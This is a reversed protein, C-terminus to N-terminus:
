LHFRHGTSRIIFVPVLLPLTVAFLILVMIAWSWRNGFNLTYGVGYRKAVFLAPDDANVYFIGFKWCKDPTEM